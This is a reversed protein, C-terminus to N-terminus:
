TQAENSNFENMAKEIGSKVWIECAAVVKKVLNNVVKLEERHFSSLVYNKAEEKGLSRGIGLRLRNFDRTGLSKIISALGKHGGSSGNKKFRLVGLELDMDDCVVLADGPLVGKLKLLLEVAAGSLNMFTNPVALLCEERAITIIAIRSKLSRSLKLKVKHERAIAKVVRAGLNHRTNVYSFGPNGLGVILKM